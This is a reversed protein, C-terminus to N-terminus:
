LLPSKIMLHIVASPHPNNGMPFHKGGFYPQHSFNISKYSRYYRWQRLNNDVSWQWIAAYQRTFTTTNDNCVLQDAGAQATDVPLVEIGKSGQQTCGYIDSVDVHYVGTM